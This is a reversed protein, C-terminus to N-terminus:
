KIHLNNYMITENFNNKSVKTKKYWDHINEINKSTMIKKYSSKTSKIQQQLYNTFTERLIVKAYKCGNVRYSM